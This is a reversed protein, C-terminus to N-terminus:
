PEQLEDYAFPTEVYYRLSIDSLRGAQDFHWHPYVGTQWPLREIRYYGGYRLVVETVNGGRDFNWSMGEARPGLQEKIAAEVEEVHSGRPTISWLEARLKDPSFRIAEILAVGLFVLVSIAAVALLWVLPKRVRM